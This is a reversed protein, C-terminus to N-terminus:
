ILSGEAVQSALEVYAKQMKVIKPPDTRISALAVALAVARASAFPEPSMPPLGPPAVNGGTYFTALALAGAASPIPAGDAPAKAAMRNDDTPQMVWRVAATAAARDAPTLGDGLAHQICLCGWWIAERAPLAHAMFHIADICKKNELLATVFERPDIGDRLLPKTDDQLDFHACIEAATTALIKVFPGNSM